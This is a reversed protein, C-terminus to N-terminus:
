NEQPPESLADEYVDMPEEELSATRGEKCQRAWHGPQKCRFCNGEPPKSRKDKGVPNLRPKESAKGCANEVCQRVANLLDPLTQLGATSEKKSESSSVETTGRGRGRVRGRGRGSFTSTAAVANIDNNSFEQSTWCGESPQFEDTRRM